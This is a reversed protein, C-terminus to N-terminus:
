HLQFLLAKPHILLLQHLWPCTQTTGPDWPPNDPCSYHSFKKTGTKWDQLWFRSKDKGLSNYNIKKGNVLEGGKNNGAIWCQRRIMRTSSNHHLYTTLVLTIKLIIPLNCCQYPLCCVSIGTCFVPYIDASAVTNCPYLNFLLISFYKIFISDNFTWLKNHLHVAALLSQLTRSSIKHIEGPIWPSIGAAAAERWPVPARQHLTMRDGKRNRHLLPCHTWMFTQFQLWGVWGLQETGSSHSPAAKGQLQELTCRFKSNWGEQHLAKPIINM